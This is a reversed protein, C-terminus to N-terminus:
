ELRRLLEEHSKTLQERYPAPLQPLLRSLNEIATFAEARLGLDLCSRALERYDFALDVKSDASSHQAVARVLLRHADRFNKNGRRLVALNFLAQGYKLHFEPNHVVAGTKELREFGDLSREYEREAAPLSQQSELILGRLNYAQALDTGLSVSPIALQEFLDLAQLNRQKASDLRGQEQLLIALNGYFKALELKYERKRPESRTLAEHIAVAREYAKEAESQRGAAALLLGLNNYTRALEQRAQGPPLAPSPDMQALPELLRIAERYDSDDTQSESRLIGRNYHTRGLELRYVANEPFEKLLGEQLRIAAGYADEAGSRYSQSPRQTEGLWNQANALLARYEPNRPFNKALNEFDVAAKKYEKIAPETQELLRSIDGLRFHALAVEKRFMESDPKQDSFRAYFEKAKKLLEQRFEEMQPAEAAVRAPERGASSLMEDVAKKALQLNNEARLREKWAVSGLYVAILFLAGMVGAISWALTLKRKRQKEQEAALRNREIESLDLFEMARQFSPAYRQAWAATPRNKEKWQLGFELEPDRWLGATGEEHWAASRALRMYFDASVREKEAWDILRTWCRMLSEHSLDIISRPEIPAAVPPTLFSRSPRRFVEIVSIVESEGAGCIAALQEVSAPRRVGRHDTSTDTLAKFLREAIQKGRSSGTEEYAEEAHLSLARRMTGVAEYHVLDVPEGPQRHQKWYDWTRMLAHQLVPLQDPDDGVDNLL